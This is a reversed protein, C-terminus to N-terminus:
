RTRRTVPERIPVRRAAGRVGGDPRISRADVDHQFFRGRIGRGFRRFQLLSQECEITTRRTFERVFGVRQGSPYLLAPVFGDAFEGASPPVRVRGVRVPFEARREDGPGRGFQVLLDDVQGLADGVGRGSIGSPLQARTQPISDKIGRYGEPRLPLDCEDEGARPVMEAAHAAIQACGEGLHESLLLGFVNIQPSLVRRVLEPGIECGGIRGGLLEEESM